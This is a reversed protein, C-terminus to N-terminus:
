VKNDLGFILGAINPVGIVTPFINQPLKQNSLGARTFLSGTDIIISHNEIM